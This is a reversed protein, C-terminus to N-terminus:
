LKCSQRRLTCPTLCKCTLSALSRVRNISISILCHGIAGARSTWFTEQSCWGMSGGDLPFPLLKVWDAFQIRLEHCAVTRSGRSLERSGDLRATTESGVPAFPGVHASGYRDVHRLATSVTGRDLRGAEVPELDVMHAQNRSRCSMSFPTGRLHYFVVIGQSGPNRHELRAIVHDAMLGDYTAGAFQSCSPRVHILVQGLGIGFEIHFASLQLNSASSCQRRGPREFHFQGTCVLSTTLQHSYLV